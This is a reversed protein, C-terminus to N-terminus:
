AWPRPEPYQREEYGQAEARRRRRMITLCVSAIGGVAGGIMLILGVTPLDIYKPQYSVAFRLIAGMVILAVSAAISM